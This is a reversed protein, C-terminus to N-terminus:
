TIEILSPRSAASPGSAGGAIRPSRRRSTTWRPSTPSFIKEYWAKAADFRQNGHLRDAILFVDYFFVELFLPRLRRQLGDPRAAAPDRRPGPGATRRRHQLLPQVAARAPVPLGPRDARGARRRGPRRSLRDVVSTSLRSFTFKLQQFPIPQATYASASVLQENLNGASTPYAETFTTQSLRLLGPETSEALYSEAGFGFAFAGIRNSIPTIWSAFSPINYLIPTGSSAGAVPQSQM